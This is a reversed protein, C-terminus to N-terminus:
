DTTVFLLFFYALMNLTAALIWSLAYFILNITSLTPPTNRARLNEAYETVLGVTIGFLFVFLLVYGVFIWVLSLPITILFVIIWIMALGSGLIPPMARQLKSAIQKAGILIPATLLLFIIFIKTFVIM